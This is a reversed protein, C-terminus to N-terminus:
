LFATSIAHLSLPMSLCFPRFHDNRTRQYGFLCPSPDVTCPYLCIRAQNHLSALQEWPIKYSCSNLNHVSDCDQVLFLMPNRWEKGTPLWILMSVPGSHMCLPAKSSLFASFCLAWHHTAHIATSIAQLSSLM